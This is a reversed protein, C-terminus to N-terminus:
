NGAEVTMLSNNYTNQQNWHADICSEGSAKDMSTSRATCQRKGEKNRKTIHTTVDSKKNMLVRRRQNQPSVGPPPYVRKEKQGKKDHTCQCEIEIAIIKANLNSNLTLSKIHWNTNDEITLYISSM